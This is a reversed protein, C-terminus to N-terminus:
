SSYEGTLLRTLGVKVSHLVSGEYWSFYFPGQKRVEDEFPCVEIWRTFTPRKSISARTDLQFASLNLPNKNATTNM